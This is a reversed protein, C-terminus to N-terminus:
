SPTPRSPLNTSPRSVGPFVPYQLIQPSGLHYLPLSDLQWHLYICSVWTQDRACVWQNSFTATAMAFNKIYSLLATQWMRQSERQHIIERCCTISNSPIKGVTFSKEFNPYIREFGTVAKDVWNVYYEWDKITMEVTKIDGEGPTYEMELFWKIQQNM